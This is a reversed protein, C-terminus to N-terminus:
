WPPPVMSCAIELRVASFIAATPNAPIAMGERVGLSACAVFQDASADAVHSLGIPLMVIDALFPMLLAPNVPM